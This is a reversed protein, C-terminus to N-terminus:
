SIGSRPCLSDQPNMAMKKLLARSAYYSIPSMFKKLEESVNFRFSDKSPSHFPVRVVFRYEQQVEYKPDKLFLAITAEEESPCGTIGRLRKVAYYIFESQKEEELYVVPGHDVFICYDNTQGLQRNAASAIMHWAPSDCKLYKSPEVQEGFDHGLQKAFAAPKDIQTMYDYKPYTKKMQEVRKCIIRPDISTCYLWFGPLERTINAKLNGRLGPVSATVSKKFAEMPQSGQRSWNLTETIEGESNDAVLGSTEKGSEEHSKYLSPAGLQLTGTSTPSVPSYQEESYKILTKSQWYSHRAARMVGNLDVYRPVVIYSSNEM